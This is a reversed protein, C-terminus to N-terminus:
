PADFDIRSSAELLSRVHQTREHDLPACLIEGALDHIDRIRVLPHQGNLPGQLGKVRQALTQDGTAKSASFRALLANAAEHDPDLMLLNNAFGIAREIRGLAVNCSM